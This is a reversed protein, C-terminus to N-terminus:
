AVVGMVTRGIAEALRVPVANAIQTYKPVEREWLGKDPDGARKRGGTQSKGAFRYDDPFCQFRAYERVTLNRPRSYHVFDAPQSAITINPGTRPWRRPLVRQSFKRTRYKEPIEGGHSIMYEFKEVTAPSHRPMEHDTMGVHPGDEIDGILGEPDEPRWGPRPIMEDFGATPMDKRVGLMIIRPRRQPVGYESARVLDWRVTYGGIGTFENRVDNWIEGKEGGAAWRGSLLGAVNEFVFCQPRLGRIIDAMDRYLYNYPLDKKEVNFSRRHGIGSFGQCPPGGCVLALEGALIRYSERLDDRLRELEGPRALARADRGHYRERLHPHAKDRNMLYTELADGNIESVYAPTLGARELGLSLGGCGAFLDVFYHAM